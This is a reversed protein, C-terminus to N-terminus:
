LKIQKLQQKVESIQLLLLNAISLMLIIVNSRKESIRLLLLTALNM